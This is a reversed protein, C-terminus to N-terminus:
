SASFHNWGHGTAPRRNGNADAILVSGGGGAIVQGIQRVAVNSVGRVAELAREAGVPTTTFVLEYDDSPGLIFSDPTRGLLAAARVLSEGVPLSEEFLVVGTDRGEVMHTLDGILGDSLDIMSTVAGSLGLTRGERLRATPTLYAAVLDELEPPIGRRGASRLLALGAAASGPAGTVWVRDGPQAGDRRIARGSEVEGIVTVDIVLGSDLGSVNGGILAAHLPALNEVMGSYLDELDEVAVEPGVALSVLAARALGGMAAIDSASVAISRGGLARPAIWEPIFHRGAIQADCTILIERGPTPLLSAADDGIGLVLMEDSPEGRSHDREAIARLRAILGFEGIASIPTGRPGRWGGGFSM